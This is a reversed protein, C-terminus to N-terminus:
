LKYIELAPFNQSFVIYSACSVTLELIIVATYSVMSYIVSRHLEDSSGYIEKQLTSILSGSM